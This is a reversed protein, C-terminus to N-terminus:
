RLYYTRIILWPLYVMGVLAMAFVPTVLIRALLKSHRLRVVPLFMALAGLLPIMYRGQINDVYYAGVSTWNLYLAGCLAVFSAMIAAVGVILARWSPRVRDHDALLDSLIAAAIAIWWLRYLARPLPVDMWGFRGIFSDWVVFDAFYRQVDRIPLLVVLQPHHLLVQLQASANPTTFVRNPDGPWLPGGHYPARAVIPGPILISNIIAWLVGPLIVLLCARIALAFSRSQGREKNRLLPFLMCAALPFYPIKVAIVAALLLGGLLYSRSNMRNARTLFAIALTLTAILLGDQNCSAALSLTMPLALMAFLLAKGYRAIFLAFSAVVLFCLANAVRAWLVAEYPSQHLDKATGVAAAVPIYFVPFYVATNPAYRLTAAKAWCISELRELNQRTTQKRQPWYINPFAVDADILAPNCIVGGITTPKGDIIAPISKAFVEGRLLSAARALHAPEDAVEGPPTLFALLLTTPLAFLVFLSAAIVAGRDRFCARIAQASKETM